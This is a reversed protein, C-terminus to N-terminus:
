SGEGGLLRSLKAELLSWDSLGLVQSRLTDLERDRLDDALKAAMKKRGGDIQVPEACEVAHITGGSVRAKESYWRSVSELRVGVQNRYFLVGQLSASSADKLLLGQGGGTILSDRADLESKQGASIASGVWKVIQSRNLVVRSGVLDLGDGGAKVVRLRDLKATSYELTIARASTNRFTTDELRFDQVYAVHLADDAAQSGELRAHVIEIDRTDQVNVMGPYRVLDAEPRTGSSVEVYALRSGATGPGQLAIGGWRGALPQFRIPERDSGRAELRGLFILSARPGLRFSTAPAIVVSQHVSFVRTEPVEVVGPGLQVTQPVPEPHCWPHPSTQGPDERYGPDCATSLLPSPAESRTSSGTRIDFGHGTVLSTGQVRLQHPQCRDSVIFLRYRRPDPQAKVRGRHPPAGHAELRVGPFLELGLRAPATATQPGGVQQDTAEGFEGDLNRDTFLRWDGPVCAEPWSPLVSGIRIGSTGGVTLDVLAWQTPERSGGAGPKPPTPGPVLSLKIEPEELAKGLYRDRQRLTDLRGEVAFAQLEDTVPRLLEQYYPGLAPLLEHADWFPDRAQDPAMSELLARTRQGVAQASCAGRVLQYLLRNRRTVYSPLQELRFLLPNDTRTLEPERGSAGFSLAIPEFKGRYPDFYLAHNQQGDYQGSGFIVGLAAFLALKDLDLHRAAFDVFAQPSAQNLAFILAELEKPTGMGQSDVQNWHKASRWLASVGSKPEGPSQPDGTAEESFYLTGPVRRGRRLLGEDPPAEFFYLGLYASNLLLRFPFYDPALLGQDRAIALFINEEFPVVEPSNIFNFSSHGDLLDEGKMRVQWSKQPHNWRSHKGGRYRVEVQRTRRAHTLVGEVYAAGEDSPPRSGLQDLKDNDLLLGYTPLPSKGRPEPMMLRRWDQSHRDHLPLPFLEATLPEQVGVVSEHRVHAALAMVAYWLCLALAPAAMVLASLFHIRLLRSLLTPQGFHRESLIRARVLRHYLRRVLEPEPHHLVNVSLSSVIGRFVV